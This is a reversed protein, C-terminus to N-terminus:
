ANRGDEVSHLMLVEHSHPLLDEGVDVLQPIFVLGESNPFVEHGLELEDLKRLAFGSVFTLECTHPLLELVGEQSFGHLDLGFGQPVLHVGPLALM